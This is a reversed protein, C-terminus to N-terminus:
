EKPNRQSSEKRSVTISHFSLLDGVVIRFKDRIEKPITVANNANVKATFITIEEM